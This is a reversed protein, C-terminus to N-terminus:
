DVRNLRNAEQVFKREANDESKEKVVCFGKGSRHQCVNNVVPTCNGNIKYSMIGSSRREM